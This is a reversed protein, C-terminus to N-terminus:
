LPNPTEIITLSALNEFHKPTVARSSAISGKFVAHTHRLLAYLLIRLTIYEKFLSLYRM